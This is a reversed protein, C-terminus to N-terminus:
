ITQLKREEYIDGREGKWRMKMGEFVENEKLDKMKKCIRLFFLRKKKLILEVRENLSQQRIDLGKGVCPEVKLCAICICFAFYLPFVFCLVFEPLYHM